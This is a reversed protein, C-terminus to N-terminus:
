SNKKLNLKDVMHTDIGIMLRLASRLKDPDCIEKFLYYLLRSYLYSAHELLRYKYRPNNIFFDRTQLYAKGMAKLEYTADMDSGPAFDIDTFMLMKMAKDRINLSETIERLEEPPECIVGVLLQRMKTLREKNDYLFKYMQGTMRLTDEDVKYKIIMQILAMKDIHEM